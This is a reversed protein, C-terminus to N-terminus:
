GPLCPILSGLLPGGLTVLIPHRDHTVDTRSIALPHLVVRSVTEGCLWAVVVHGAEFRQEGCQVVLRGGDKTVRDVSMGARVPLEFRAAYAELYDATERATPYSWSPAM